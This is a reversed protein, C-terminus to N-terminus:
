KLHCKLFCFQLPYISFLSFTHKIAGVFLFFFDVTLMFYRALLMRQREKLVVHDLDDVSNEYIEEKVKTGPFDLQSSANGNGGNDGNSFLIDSDEVKMTVPVDSTTSCLWLSSPSM